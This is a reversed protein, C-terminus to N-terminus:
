TDRDQKDNSPPSLARDAPREFFAKSTGSVAIKAFLLVGGWLGVLGLYLFWTRADPDVIATYTVFVGVPLFVTAAVLACLIRERKSYLRM